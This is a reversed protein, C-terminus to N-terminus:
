YLPNDYNKESFNPQLLSFRYHDRFVHNVQACEYEIGEFQFGLKEILKISPVNEPLIKAEIRHLHYDNFIISLAKKCAEYCYGQKQYSHHMKYGFIASQFPGKAINSFSICGIIQEPDEKPFIWLRLGKQKLIQDYEYALSANQYKLTYFNKPRTLEYPEFQAKNEEYFELVKETADTHLVKLLLRPTEYQFYMM